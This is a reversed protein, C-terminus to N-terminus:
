DDEGAMEHRVIWKGPAPHMRTERDSPRGTRVMIFIPHAHNDKEM